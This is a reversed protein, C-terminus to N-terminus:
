QNQKALRQGLTELHANPKLMNQQTAMRQTNTFRSIKITNKQREYIYLDLQTMIHPIKHATLKHELGQQCVKHRGM